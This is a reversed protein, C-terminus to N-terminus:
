QKWALRNNSLAHNGKAEQVPYMSPLVASSSPSSSSSTPLSFFRKVIFSRIAPLPPPAAASQARPQCLLPSKLSNALSMSFCETVRSSFPRIKKFPSMQVALISRHSQSLAKELRRRGAVAPLFAIPRTVCRLARARLLVAARVAVTFSCTAPAPAPPPLHPKCLRACLRRRRRLAIVTTVTTAETMMLTRHGGPNGDNHLKIFNSLM